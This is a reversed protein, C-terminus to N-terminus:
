AAARAMRQIKSEGFKQQAYDLSLTFEKVGPQSPLEYMADLIISECIARLGRAGLNYTLAQDAIFGLVEDTWHLQIGEM